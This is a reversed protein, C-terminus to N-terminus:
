ALSRMVEIQEDIKGIASGFEQLRQREKEVVDAPANSV